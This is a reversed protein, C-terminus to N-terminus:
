SDDIGLPILDCFFFEGRQVTEGVSFPVPHDFIPGDFVFSHFEGNEGCPDASRPLEEVFAPDILRGVFTKPLQKSDVCTTMARFGGNWFSAVLESTDREWLPFMGQMGASALREERYTRIGELFIDGFVMTRIGDAHFQSLAEAMRAEYIENSADPPIIVEHLPLRLSAAQEYLLSRRVGHMSIRDYEETVTTLLATVTCRGAQRLAHLALASDKGGSWCLVVNERESSM